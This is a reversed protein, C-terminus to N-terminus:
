AGDLGSPLGLPGFLIRLPHMVRPHLEEVAEDFDHFEERFKAARQPSGNLAVVCDDTRDVRSEPRFPLLHLSHRATSFLEGRELLDFGHRELRGLKAQRHLALRRAVDHWELLSNGTTREGNDTTRQGYLSGVSLPPRVVLLPSGRRGERRSSISDNRFRAVERERWAM